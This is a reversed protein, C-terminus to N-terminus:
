DTYHVGRSVTGAVVVLVVGILAFFVWSIAAAYGMRSYTFTQEQVMELIGYAPRTFTDIITYILNVLLMPTVMPFTIKWFEQWPTAGEVKAAEFVSPPISQLAAMFILIQVGSANIIAATNEVSDSLFGVLDANATSFLGVLLEEMNLLGTVTESLAGSAAASSSGYMTHILDNSEVASILGTALIVPLFLVARAASRGIFRQNLVNAVFFSFIMIMMTDLVINKLAELLEVRFATDVFLLRRYNEWGMWQIIFGSGTLKVDCFSFYASKLICPLLILVFGIVFPAIFFWGWYGHRTNLRSRRTKATM